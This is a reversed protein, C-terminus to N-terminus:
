DLLAAKKWAAQAAPADDREEALRALAVWTRRLLVPDILTHSAQVLLQTAKGWLQRHAYAQGSLYQLYPNDPFQRQTQELRALWAADLEALGPELALVLSRQQGADLTGFSQWVPQLWERVRQVATAQDTAFADPDHELLRNARQAPCASVSARLTATFTLERWNL